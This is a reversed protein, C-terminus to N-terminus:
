EDWGRRPAGSALTNDGEGESLKRDAHPDDSQAVSDRHSLEHEGAESLTRGEDFHGGALTNVGPTEGRPPLDTPQRHLRPEFLAALEEPLHALHQRAEDSALEGVLEYVVQAHEAARADEVQERVAVRHYLTELDLEGEFPHASLSARLPEPLSEAVSEAEHDALSEGLVELSAASARRADEDSPLGGRRKVEAIFREYSLLAIM